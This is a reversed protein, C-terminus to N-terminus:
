ELVRGLVDTSYGYEYRTGPDFVLPVSALEEVFAALSTVRGFEVGEVLSCYRQQLDSPPYGFDIGYSFGATHTLLHRVRMATQAPAPSQSNAPLVNPCKLAPIYRAVETDLDM